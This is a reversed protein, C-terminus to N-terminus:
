VGVEHTGLSIPVTSQRSSRAFSAYSCWVFEDRVRWGLCPRASYTDMAHAFAVALSGDRPFTSALSRLLDADSVLMREGDVLLSAPEVSRQRTQITDGAPASSSSAACMGVCQSPTLRPDPDGYTLPWIPRRRPHGEGYTLRDEAFPSPDLPQHRPM